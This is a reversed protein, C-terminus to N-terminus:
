GRCPEDLVAARAVRREGNTCEVAFPIRREAADDLVAAGAGKRDDFAAGAIESETVAVAVAGGGIAGDAADVGEGAAEGDFLAREGEAARRIVLLSIGADEFAAGDAGAREPKEAAAREGGLFFVVA